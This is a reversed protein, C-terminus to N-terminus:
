SAWDRMFDRLRAIEQETFTGAEIMYDTDYQDFFQKLFTSFNLDLTEGTLYKHAKLEDNYLNVLKDILM